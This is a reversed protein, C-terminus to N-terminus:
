HLHGFTEGVVQNAVQKKLEQLTQVLQVLLAENVSVYLGLVQQDGLVEFKHNGVEVECHPQVFNLVRKRGVHAM